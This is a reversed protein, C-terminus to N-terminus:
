YNLTEVTALRDYIDKGVTKSIDAVASSMAEAFSQPTKDQCVSTAAYRKQLLIKRTPDYGQNAILTMNIIASAQWGSAADQEVFEEIWGYLSHTASLAAGPPMVAHFGSTRDLDRALFYPLLEGPSAVWQQYAYANRQLGDHSYIIRQSNYPPSVSFREVRVTCPLVSAFQQSPSPYELTYYYIPQPPRSNGVCAALLILGFLASALCVSAKPKTM